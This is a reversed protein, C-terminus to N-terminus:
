AIMYWGPDQDRGDEIGNLFTVYEIKGTQMKVLLALESDAGIKAMVKGIKCFKHLSSIKYLEHGIHIMSYINADIM